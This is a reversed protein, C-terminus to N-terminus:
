LRQEYIGRISVFCVVGQSRSESFKTKLKRLSSLLHPEIKPKASFNFWM